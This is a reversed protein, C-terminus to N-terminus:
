LIKDTSWAVLVKKESFTETQGLVIRDFQFKKYLSVKKKQYKVDYRGLFKFNFDRCYEAKPNSNGMVFCM